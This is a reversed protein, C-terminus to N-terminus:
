YDFLQSGCFSHCYTKLHFYRTEIIRCSFESSINNSSIYLKNNVAKIIRNDTDNEGIVNGLHRETSSIPIVGNNMMLPPIDNRGNFIIIQSNGPNFM